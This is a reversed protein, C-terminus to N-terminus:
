YLQDLAIVEENQPPSLNLLQEKLERYLVDHILKGSTQPQCLLLTCNYRALWTTLSAVLANAALKSRYQGSYAKEWSASEILLYTKAGKAAAREFERAFRPRASTYCSCLEDLSEKREIVCREALSYTTGNPLSCLATYDGFDLKKQVYPVGFAKYRAAAAPTPKERTDVVITM